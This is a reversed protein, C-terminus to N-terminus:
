NVQRNREFEEISSLPIRYWGRRLPNTKLVGAFQGEAIWRRVSSTDVGLRRAAETVTLYQVQQPEHTDRMVTPYAEM